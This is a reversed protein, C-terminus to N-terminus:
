RQTVILGKSISWFFWGDSFWVVAAAEGLEGVHAEAAAEDDNDDESATCVSDVALSTGSSSGVSETGDQELWLIGGISSLELAFAGVECSVGDSSGIKGVFGYWGHVDFIGGLSVFVWFM